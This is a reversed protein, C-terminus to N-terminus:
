GVIKRQFSIREEVLCCNRGEKRRRGIESEATTRNEFGTIETRPGAHNEVIKYRVAEHEYELRM